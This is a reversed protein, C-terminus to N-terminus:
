AVAVGAAAPGVSARVVLEAPLTVPTREGPDGGRLIDLLLHVAAIGAASKQLRVTTLKPTVVEALSTDGFGVLSIDEPVSRGRDALRGLVGVAIEDNFAVIATASTGLVLDAARVGSALTPEFPGREALEVGLRRCTARVACLRMENSYGAPGALYVVERHGLAHLHEVAHVTADTPDTLVAPIGDVERNILVVPTHTALDHLREDAMSPRSLLLGEVQGAMAVAIRAEDRAAEDPDAVFLAYGDYRAQRQVAKIVEAQFPSAIDSVILGLNGSRGRALSRAVPNPMYRLEEAAALVRQRTAGAVAHPQTFVRSVTAPSVGARAAVDRITM